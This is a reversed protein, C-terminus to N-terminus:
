RHKVPWDRMFNDPMYFRQLKIADGLWVVCKGIRYHFGEESYQSTEKDRM